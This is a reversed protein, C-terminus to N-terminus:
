QQESVIAISNNDGNDTTSDPRTARCRILLRGGM